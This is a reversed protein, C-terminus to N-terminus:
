AAWDFNLHPKFSSNLIQSTSRMRNRLRKTPYLIMETTLTLWHLGFSDRGPSEKGERRSQYIVTNSTIGLDIEGFSTRRLICGRTILCSEKVANTSAMMDDWVILMVNCLCLM